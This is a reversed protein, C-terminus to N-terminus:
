FERGTDEDKTSSQNHFVTASSSQTESSASDPLKPMSSKNTRLDFHEQERRSASSDTTLRATDISRIFEAPCELAAIM